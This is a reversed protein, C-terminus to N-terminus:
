SPDETGKVEYGAARVVDVVTAMTESGWDEGSLIEAIRTMPENANRVGIAMDLVTMVLHAPLFRRFDGIKEPNDLMQDTLIVVEGLTMRGSGMLELKRFAAGLVDGDEPPDAPPAPPAISISRKLYGGAQMAQCVFHLTPGVELEPDLLIEAVRELLEKDKM